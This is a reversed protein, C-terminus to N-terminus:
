FAQLKLTHFFVRGVVYIKFCKASSMNLTVNTWIAVKAKPIYSTWAPGKIHDYVPSFM